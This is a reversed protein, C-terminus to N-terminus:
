MGTVFAAIAGAVEEPHSLHPSHGGTPFVIRSSPGTVGREIRDLQELTGYRDDECQVLLVPCHIASLYDEINWSRFEPSLWIDNWGWFAADTDAHHRDLRTRLGGALYDHRAAEISEVALAEVFVHPALAVVGRIPGVGGADGRVAGGAHILAISAGDSHGILVSSRVKLATLLGPLVRLAEDHMYAARRTRAVVDSGGYGHRSWTIARLGTCAAVAEPFSRWLGASGLGEHLFVLVPAAEPGPRAPLDAYEVAGGGVDLRKL